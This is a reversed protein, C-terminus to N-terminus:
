LRQAVDSDFAARINDCALVTATIQLIHAARSSRATRTALWQLEDFTPRLDRADLGIPLRQDWFTAVHRMLM